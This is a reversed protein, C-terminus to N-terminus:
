GINSFPRTTILHALKWPIITGDYPLSRPGTARGTKLIPREGSVRPPQTRSGPAEALFEERQEENLGALLLRKRLLVAQASESGFCRDWAVSRLTGGDCCEGCGRVAVGPRLANALQDQLSFLATLLGDVTAAHRVTGTAM